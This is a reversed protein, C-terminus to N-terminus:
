IFLRFDAQSGMMMLTSLHIYYCGQAGWGETWSNRAKLITNFPDVQGNSLLKLQAVEFYETEHGGAIGQALQAQFSAVTGNGDLVADSPPQMWSSLFPSGVILSGHQLLSVVNTPGSAIKAGKIFGLRVLEQVVYIGSSGCDTPPWEQAPDGTQHTCRYYFAIAAKEVTVVDSYIDYDEGLSLGLLLNILAIFLRKSLFSSLKAFTANATCSGLADVDTAGPIFTSVRIGQELLDEQDLVGIRPPHSVTKLEVTEPDHHHFWALNSPPEAVAYRGFKTHMTM